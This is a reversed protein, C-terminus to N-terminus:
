PTTTDRNLAGWGAWGRAHLLEILRRAPPATDFALRDIMQAFQPEVGPGDADHQQALEAIHAAMEDALVVLESDDAPRDLADSLALYFDVLPGARLQAQKRAAWTRTTEPSHAALLTWGDREIQIIREDIDLARLRELLSAVEAPLVLRDGPVLQAIRERHRQRTHIEERLRQDIEAIAAAFAAEDSQLLERVRGLPVGAEALTRIRILAVLAAPGYRRYGSRDRVPEALLGKAHYHRVARVTV